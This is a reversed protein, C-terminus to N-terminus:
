PLTSITGANRVSKESLIFCKFVKTTSLSLNFLITMQQLSIFVVLMTPNITDSSPYFAVTRWEPCSMDSDLDINLLQHSAGTVGRTTLSVARGLRAMTPASLPVTKIWQSRGVSVLVVKERLNVKMLLPTLFMKVVAGACCTLTMRMSPSSSAALKLVMMGKRLLLPASM